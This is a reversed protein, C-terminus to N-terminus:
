KLLDVLAEDLRSFKFEFGEALIKFASVNQSAVLLYHMEGLMLKLIPTPVNPMFYPKSLVTAIQRTLTKNTVPNPAVANYIGELENKIAFAYIEAMDHIHIWSQSQLGSGFASGMGLRAPKALESLVGGDPSLVLGTRLKCVKI